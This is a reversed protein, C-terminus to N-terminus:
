SPQDPGGSWSSCKVRTWITLVSTVLTTSSRETYLLSFIREWWGPRSKWEEGLNPKEDCLRDLPSRKIEFSAPITKLVNKLAERASESDSVAWIIANTLDICRDQDIIAYSM